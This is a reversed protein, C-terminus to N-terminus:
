TEHGTHFSFDQKDLDKSLFAVGHPLVLADHVPKGFEFVYVGEGDGLLQRFVWHVQSVVTQSANSIVPISLDGDILYSM